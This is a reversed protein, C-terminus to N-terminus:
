AGSGSFGQAELNIADPVARSAPIVPLTIRTGEQGTHVIVQPAVAHSPFHDPDSTNVKLAIRSNAPFRHATTFCPPSVLLRQGPIVPALTEIGDRLEPNMACTSIRRRGGDQAVQYLTAVLHFRPSTGTFALDLKPVGAILVDRALPQTEFDVGGDYRSQFGDVNGIFSLQGDEADGEVLQNDPTAALTLPTAEPLPYRDGVIAQSQNDIASGDDTADNIFAEFPPGTDVDRGLLTKDFWAHLALTWQLGRRTPCCGIGHDWQGLWFKDGARLGRENFWGISAIRAADDNIGHVVWIRGPWNKLGERHDRPGHFLPDFRGSSMSENSLVANNQV